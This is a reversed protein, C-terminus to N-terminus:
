SGGLRGGAQENRIVVRATPDEKGIRSASIIGMGILDLGWGEDPSSDRYLLVDTSGRYM